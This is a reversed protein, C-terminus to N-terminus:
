FENKEGSRGLNKFYEKPDACTMAGSMVCIGAAGADIVSAANKECIGGIAYVPINVSKCVAHLFDTGRGMLGKKCDTEFIHGATIYSCGLRQAEVADDTSHCSAGIIKFSEKDADTMGRLVPLPLHVSAAGLKAASKYFTHLICKVKHEECIKLTKQALLAYDKENLDKERLIIGQVRCDAIKEIRSLFDGVCISRNTVCIIDFM